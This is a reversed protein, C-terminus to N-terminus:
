SYFVSQIKTFVVEASVFQVSVRFGGDELDTLSMKVEVKPNSEPNLVALFKCNTMARLKMDKNMQQSLLEKVIEMQVVGPTVPNGPFHGKYIPHEGNLEILFSLTNDDRFCEQITYFNGALM